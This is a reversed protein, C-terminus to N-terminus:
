QPVSFAYLKKSSTGKVIVRTSPLGSGWYVVGGTVAPGGYVTGGSKYKWLVDGTDANLAFMYGDKDMSGGFMVGNVAVVPGDVTSGNLPKSMAPNAVQWLIRGTAADLAAWMGTSTMQGAQSGMGQIMQPTGFENNVEVYIRNGDTATGWHLGGAVGGPGVQTMWQQKGTDPDFAWYQGSKQGAGVLDKAHGGIM